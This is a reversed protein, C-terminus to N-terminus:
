DWSAVLIACKLDKSIGKQGISIFFDRALTSEEFFNVGPFPFMRPIGGQVPRGWRWSKWLANCPKAAGVTADLTATIVWQRVLKKFMACGYISIKYM